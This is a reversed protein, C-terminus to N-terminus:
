YSNQQTVLFICFLFFLSPTIVAEVWCLIKHYSLLCTQLDAIDYSKVDLFAFNQVQPFLLLSFPLLLLIFFITWHSIFQICFCLSGQFDFNPTNRFIFIFTLSARHAGTVHVLSFKHNPSRLQLLSTRSEWAGKVVNWLHSLFHTYIKTVFEFIDSIWGVKVCILKINIELEWEM